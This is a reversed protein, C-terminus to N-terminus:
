MILGKLELMDGMNPNISKEKIYKSYRKEFVNLTSEFQQLYGLTEEITNIVFNVEPYCVDNEYIFRNYKDDPNFIISPVGYSLAEFVVSSTISMCIDSKAIVDGSNVHPQIVTVFDYDAEYKYFKDMFDQRYHPKIQVKVNLNSNEILPLVGSLYDLYVNTYSDPQTFITYMIAGEPMKKRHGPRIPFYQKYSSSYQKYLQYTRESYLFYRDALNLDPYLIRRMAVNQFNYIACGLAHATERAIIMQEGVAYDTIFKCDPEITFQSLEDIARNICVKLKITEYKLEHFFSTPIPLKKGGIIFLDAKHYRETFIKFLKGFELGKIYHLGNAKALQRNFTFVDWSYSYNGNLSSTISAIHKYQLPLDVITILSNEGKIITTNSKPFIDKIRKVVGEACICLMEYFYRLYNRIWYIEKNGKYLWTIEVKTNLLSHLFYNILWNTEYNKKVGEGEGNTLTCFPHESGGYLVVNDLKYKKIIDLINFLYQYIVRLVKYYFTNQSIIFDKNDVFFAKIEKFVDDNEDVIIEDIPIITVKRDFTRRNNPSLLVLDGENCKIDKQSDVVVHLRM